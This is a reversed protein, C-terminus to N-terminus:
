QSYFSSKDVAGGNRKSFIDDPAYDIETTTGMETNANSVEDFAKVYKENIM